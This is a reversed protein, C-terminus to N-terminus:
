EDEENNLYVDLLGEPMRVFLKQNVRDVRLITDDNVPILIENGLYFLQILDQGPYELVEEVRGLEGHVEDIVNFGKIEHYYFQNDKLEPLAERPLYIEKGTLVEAQEPNDVDELAVIALGNAQLTLEEIFFPVQSVGIKIFLADLGSYAQPDDVDLKIKLRGDSAHMKQVYGLYFFEQKAM